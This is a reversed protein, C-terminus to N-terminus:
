KNLIDKLERLKREPLSIGEKKAADAIKELFELPNMSERIKGLDVTIVKTTAPDYLRVIDKMIDKEGMVRYVDLQRLGLEEIIYKYKSLVKVM